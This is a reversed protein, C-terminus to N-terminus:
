RAGSLISKGVTKKRIGEKKRIVMAGENSPSILSRL